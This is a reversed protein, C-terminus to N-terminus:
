IIFINLKFKGVIINEDYKANDNYRKANGLRNIVIAIISVPSIGDSNNILM